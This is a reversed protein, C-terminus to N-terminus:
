LNNQQDTAFMEFEPTSEHSDPSKVDLDQNRSERPFDASRTM